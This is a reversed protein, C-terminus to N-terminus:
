KKVSKARSNAGIKGGGPKAPQRAPVKPKPSPRMSSKNALSAANKSVLSFALGLSKEATVEDLGTKMSLERVMGSNNLLGPAVRGTSGLQGLMEDLDFTNSDRGSTPHHALLKHAVFSVVIMAIAPSINAKKALPEIFPQLLMMIPDSATQMGSQGGSMIGELAGMMGSLGGTQPQSASQTQQAGSMLGGVLNMVDGADVGDSLNVGGQQSAGQPQTAGLLGGVLNAMDALDTGGQQGGSQSGGSLLGGILGTMPDAGGQTSSGQQRSDVLAKLIDEM